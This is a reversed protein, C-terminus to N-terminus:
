TRSAARLAALTIAMTALPDPPEFALGGDLAKRFAVLQAKHGKDRSRDGARRARGQGYLRLSRFDDLTASRGASHVEVYEKGASSAGHSSYLITALSSDAFTLSVVFSEAAALPRDPEARLACDVREPLAGTMWCVFDVFHCGEGLLRGGGDDLDNLWHGEPLRGANVRYLLELPGSGSRVFHRLERALPAHRRNFGVVLARGTEDRARALESLSDETLAPPKEVFVAKGARLARTALDAHSAHRTAVVVVGLSPDEIVEDTTAVRGFGFREAAARASLGGSSAVAGLTFGADRLAPILIRRAFSGAGVFGAV